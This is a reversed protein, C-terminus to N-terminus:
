ASLVVGSINRVKPRAAADGTLVIKIKTVAEGCPVFRHRRHWGSGIPEEESVEGKTWVDPATQVFVEVTAGSPINEETTVMIRKGTGCKFARSVYDGTTGIKGTVIQPDRGMIPSFLRDGFLEAVVKHTGELPADFSLVQGAQMRTVEVDDKKLVFTVDTNSSTRQIEAVPLVDTVGTLDMEALEVERPADAQFVAGLLRFTLDAAQHPTWTSANASSLLVGTQYRQSRIWGTEPDWDGLEAIGVEHDATDTLIVLAYEVGASLYVPFDFIARNFEGEKLNEPELRCMAITNRTPWGTDVEVIEVQIPSVGKKELWFDLGMVHRNESLTFTQALPDKGPPRPIYYAVTRRLDRIGVFTAEGRTHTGQLVVLKTGTPVGKPIRITGEFKGESDSATTACNVEIGDFFVKIPEGYGFGAASIKVDIERLNGTVDETFTSSSSEFSAAIATVFHDTWRDIAPTLAVQAPLPDFAMYPNIKMAKTHMPQDILVEPTHPMSLEAGTPMESISLEMPLQLMRGAVLATQPTGKDRMDDDFLPDVFVGFASTPASLMADVRMRDEASLSYLDRIASRMRVLEDMRVAQVAVNRVIPLGIWTQEVTALCIAGPPTAPLVPAYRHPVGKVMTVSRDRYMVIIDKRPMRYTYDLEILSGEVLGSLTIDTPSSADPVINTRYHYKVTYKSGPAPESGEAEWNVKNADLRYDSGQTFITGGQKIEVLKIVSTDPLNDSAGTYNGHTLEVTKEKTVRVSKVDEIPTQHVSVVASGSGGSEFQHAESTVDYLDAEESVILRVAHTLRAEYGHIHALGQAVSYTQKKGNDEENANPLATVHLGEVVYHGHSDRDYRALADLYDQNKERIVQSVIEGGSISYIPYFPMTLNDLNLGWEATTVVRYGGPMRYMPMNKAPNLLTPDEHETVVRSKRWIGVQVTEADPINLTAAKVDHVLGGVFVRGSALHAVKLSTDLTIECGEIITGDVYLANGLSKVKEELIHQMENAEAGQMARGSIIGIYDWNKEREYRNHYDPHNMLTKLETNKM